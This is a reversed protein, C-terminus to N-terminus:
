KTYLLSKEIIGDIGIREDEDMSESPMRIYSLEEIANYSTVVALIKMDLLYFNAITQLITLLDDNHGKVFDGDNREIMFYKAGFNSFMLMLTKMPARRDLFNSDLLVAYAIDHEQLKKALLFYSEINQTNKIRFFIFINSDIKSCDEFSDIEKFKLNTTLTSLIIM